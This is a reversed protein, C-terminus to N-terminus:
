WSVHLETRASMARHTLYGLTGAVLGADQGSQVHTDMGPTFM